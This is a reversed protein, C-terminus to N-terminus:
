LFFKMQGYENATAIPLPKVYIYLLKEMTLKDNPGTVNFTGAKRREAM